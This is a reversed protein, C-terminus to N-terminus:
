HFIKFTLYNIHLDFIKFIFIIITYPYLEFIM